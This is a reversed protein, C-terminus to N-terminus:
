GLDLSWPPALPKLKKQEKRQHMGPFNEILQNVGLEMLEEATLWKWETQLVSFFNSLDDSLSQQTKDFSATWVLSGKSSEMLYLEFSVSAPESASYSTGKRLQYRTIMGMLVADVELEKALILAIQQSKLSVRGRLPSTVRDGTILYYYHDLKKEILHTLLVAGEPALSGDELDEYTIDAFIPVIAISNIPIEEINDVQNITIFKSRCGMHLSIFFGLVAIALFFHPQTYLKNQM